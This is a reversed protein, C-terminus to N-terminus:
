KYLAVRVKYISGAPNSYRLLATSIKLAHGTKKKEAKTALQQSIQHCSPGPFDSWRPVIDGAGRTM